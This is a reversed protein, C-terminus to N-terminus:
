VIANLLCALHTRRILLKGAIGLIGDTPCIKACIHSHAHFFYSRASVCCLCSM